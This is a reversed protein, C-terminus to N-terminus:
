VLKFCLISIEHMDYRVYLIHCTDFIEAIIIILLPIIIILSSSLNAKQFAIANLDIVDSFDCWLFTKTFYQQRMIQVFKFSVKKDTSKFFQGRVRLRLCGVAKIILFSFKSKTSIPFFKKKPFFIPFFKRLDM